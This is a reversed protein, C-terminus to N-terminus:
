KGNKTLNDFSNLVAKIESSPGDYRVSKYTGKKKDKSVIEFRANVGSDGYKNKLYESILDLLAILTSYNEIALTGIYIVPGFWDGSKQVLCIDPSSYIQIDSKEKAFKYFSSATDNYYEKDVIQSYSAPIITIKEFDSVPLNWNVENETIKM